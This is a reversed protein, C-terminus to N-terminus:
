SKKVIDNAVLSVKLGTSALPVNSAALLADERAQRLDITNFGLINM